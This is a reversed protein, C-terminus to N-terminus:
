ISPQMCSWLATDSYNSHQLMTSKPLSKVGLHDEGKKEGKRRGGRRLESFQECWSICDKAAVSLLAVAREQMENGAPQM